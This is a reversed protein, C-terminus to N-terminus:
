KNTILSALLLFIIAAAGAFITLSSWSLQKAEFVKQKEQTEVFSPRLIYLLFFTLVFVAASWLFIDLNKETDLKTKANTIQTENGPSDPKVEISKQWDRM